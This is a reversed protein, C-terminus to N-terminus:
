LPNFSSKKRESSYRALGKEKKCEQPDPQTISPLIM